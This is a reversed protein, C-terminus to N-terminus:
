QSVLDKIVFLCVEMLEFKGFGLANRTKLAEKSTRWYSGPNKLAKRLEIVSHLINSPLQIEELMPEEAEYISQPLYFQIKQEKDALDEIIKREKLGAHEALSRKAPNERSNVIREINMVNLDDIIAKKATDHTADFKPLINKTGASKAAKMESKSLALPFINDAVILGRQSWAL